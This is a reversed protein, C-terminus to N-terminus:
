RWDGSLVFAAWYYPSLGRGTVNEVPQDAVELGRLLASEKPGDHLMWIQAERLAELKSMRKQWLNNYFRQMLAQTAKDPVKWLGSVVSKAGATQFARQLGLLGENAATEGLGTECASLTALEVGTLDLAQVELATLIGDDYDFDVARNAGALVLGSLLGPHFGAVDTRQFMNAAQFQGRQSASALLSRLQPPAFYGHTAFHVFNARQAERRVNAETANDRRLETVRANPFRAVFSEQIAKCEERTGPLESWQFLTGDRTDRPAALAVVEAEKVGPPGDFHVDGVVLLSPKSAQDGTGPPMEVLRLSNPVLAIPLSEILYSGPEDGPIAEWPLRALAGDPAILVLNAGVCYDKLPEWLLKRLAAGPDGGDASHRGYSKRWAEVALYIAETPGLDVTKVQPLDPRSVFAAFRRQTGDRHQWNDNRDSKPQAAYSWYDLLDILVANPPISDHILKGNPRGRKQMDRFSASRQALEGELREVNKSAEEIDRSLRDPDSAEVDSRSLAALKATARLLDEFPKALETKQETQLIRRLQRMESQRNSVSGKCAIVEEYAAAGGNPLRLATSIYFDIRYRLEQGAVLQQRESQVAAMQDLQKHGIHLAQRALAEAKDFQGQKAHADALEYLCKGCDPSEDGFSLAYTARAQELLKEAEDFREMETLLGGLQFVSLAYAPHKEGVLEKRLAVSERMLPEAAAYDGKQRYLSGLNMILSAIGEPRNGETAKKIELARLYLREAQDFDYLDHYVLALNGLATAFDSNKEGFLQRFIEVSQRRLSLAQQTDGMDLYLGGVDDLLSAYDPHRDGVANKTIALSQRALPEARVYDKRDHYIRVLSRLAKGYDPHLEGLQQKRIDAVQLQLTEAQAYNGVDCELWGLGELADAYDPHRDGVAAKARDRCEELLPRARVCDGALMYMNGLQGLTRYYREHQKGLTAAYIDLAQQYQEAAKDFNRERRDVGASSELIWAYQPDKERHAYRFVAGAQAFLELARAYDGRVNYMIALNALSVAYQPDNPGDVRKHVAIAQRLLFEEQHPDGRHGCNLALDNLSSAYDSHDEGWVARRIALAERHLPEAEVYRGLRDLLTALNHVDTAYLPHNKGYIERSLEVVKRRIPEASSLEDLEVHILGLNNLSELVLYHKEPLMSTRIELARKALPLAQSYQSQKYLKLVQDNLNFADALQKRQDRTLQRWEKVRALSLRANVSQWHGEGRAATRLALVEEASDTAASFKERDLQLECLGTLDQALNSVGAFYEAHKTGYLEKRLALLERYMPISKQYEKRNSYFYALRNLADVVKPHRNRYLKRALDLTEILVPEAPDRPDVSNLLYGLWSLSFQTLHCDRGLLETRITVSKEALPIAERFQKQRDLEIVQNILKWSEALRARQPADFEKIRDLLALELQADTTNWDDKGYTEVCLDVVETRDNRAAIFDGQDAAIRAANALMSTLDKVASQYKADKTGLVEKRLNVVQHMTAIARDYQDQNAYALALNRLTVIYEPDREGVVQRNIDLSQQYFEESKKFDSIDGYLNAMDNLCHAYEKRRQAGLSNLLDAERRFLAEAQEREGIGHYFHALNELAMAFLPHREGLSQGVIALSQRYCQEARPYDGSNEYVFALSNITNAFDRHHEGITAKQIAVVRLLKEEARAYDGQAQYMGALAKLTLAYGADSEGTLQKKIRLSELFYQEAQSYDKMEQYTFAVNHLGIAYNLHMEGLTKKRIELSELRMALAAAYEGRRSLATAVNDLGTAYEPHMEGYNKKRNALAQRYAEEALDSEDLDEYVKGLWAVSWGTLWHDEGLLKAYIDRAEKAPRLADSSNGSHASERVRGMLKGARLLLQHQGPPLREVFSLYDLGRKTDATQWHEAGYQRTRIAMVEDLAKRAQSFEDRSSHIEAVWELTSTTDDHQDGLVEREIALKKEVAALATTFDGDKELKEAESKLQDREKLRQQQQETLAPPAPPDDGLAKLLFSASFLCIFLSISTGHRPLDLRHRCSSLLARHM